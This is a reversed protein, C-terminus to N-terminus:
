RLKTSQYLPKIQLQGRSPRRPLIAPPQRRWEIQIVYGIVGAWFVQLAVGSEFLMFDQFMWLGGFQVALVAMTHAFVTTGRYVIAFYQCLATIGALAVIMGDIGFDGLFRPIATAHTSGIRTDVGFYVDTRAQTMYLDIWSNKIIGVKVLQQSVLPATLGGLTPSWELVIRGYADLASLPTGSYYIIPYLGLKKQYVSMGVEEKYKDTVTIDQEERYLWILAFLAVVGVILARMRWLAGIAHKMVGRGDVVMVYSIAYSALGTLLWARGGTMIGAIGSAITFHIIRNVNIKGRKADDLGFVVPLVAGIILVQNFIRQGITTRNELYSLRVDQLDAGQMGVGFYRYLFYALCAIYYAVLLNRSLRSGRAFVYAPGTSRVPNRRQLVSAAISGVAFGVFAGLSARAVLQHSFDTLEPMADWLGLLYACLSAAIWGLWYWFCTTFLLGTAARTIAISLTGLCLIVVITEM